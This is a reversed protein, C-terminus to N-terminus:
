EELFQKMEYALTKKKKNVFVKWIYIFNKKSNTNEIKFLKRCNQYEKMKIQHYKCKNTYLTWNSMNQSSNVRVTVHFGENATDM